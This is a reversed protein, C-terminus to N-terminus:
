KRVNGVYVRGHRFAFKENTDSGKWRFARKKGCQPCFRRDHVKFLFKVLCFLTYLLFISLLIIEFKNM